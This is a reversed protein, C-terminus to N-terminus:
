ISLYKSGAEVDERSMEFFAQHLAHARLASNMSGYHMRAFSLVERAIALNDLNSALSLAMTESVRSSEFVKLVQSVTLNGLAAEMLADRQEQPLQDDGDYLVLGVSAATTVLLNTMTPNNKAWNVLAGSGEAVSHGMARLRAAVIGATAPSAAAAAELRPLVNAMVLPVTM